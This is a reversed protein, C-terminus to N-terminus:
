DGKYIYQNNIRNSFMYEKIEKNFYSVDRQYNAQHQQGIQYPTSLNTNIAYIKKM